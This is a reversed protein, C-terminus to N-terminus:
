PTFLSQVYRQLLPVTIAPRPVIADLHRTSFTCGSPLFLSWPARGELQLATALADPDHRCAAVRKAWADAPLVPLVYGSARFADIWQQLTIGLPQAIHYTMGDPAPEGMLRVFAHAAFDVPTVDMRATTPAVEPLANLHCLGRVFPGLLDLPNGAGTRQDGTLWGFRYHVAPGYTGAALRVYREAAWKSCGYGGRVRCPTGLDDDEMFHTPSRDTALFVALTSAYHLTKVCGTGMFRLLEGLALVNAPRLMDYTAVMNVTAALHGIRDVTNALTHWDRETMGLRPQAIDGVVVRVRTTNAELGLRAMGTAENAARVLCVVADPTQELLERLVWRGLFGTAGTLLITRGTTAFREGVPIAPLQTRVDADLAASAYGDDTRTQLLAVIASFPHDDVLWTPSLTWGRERMQVIAQMARLSDGGQTMFGLHPELTRALLHSWVAHLSRAPEDPYPDPTSALELECAVLAPYDVKGNATRPLASCVVVRNPVMWSPVRERLYSRWDMAVNLRLVVFAVLEEHMQVPRVVVTTERIAPHERLWSEIEEPEILQGRWKLQRDLRGLFVYEGDDRPRVRDGTRYWRQGAHMIFKAATLEPRRHYGRALGVGGILLEDDVITYNVGALPQGLLPEHWTAPDILGMSSCVTAETPGYLNVLRVHEAWCRLVEPSSAEGGIGITQVCAPLAEPAFLTLMLPPLDVYHIQRERLVHPLTQPDRTREDRDIVLTAGALLATGLDSVSADFAPSLLWLSRSGPRLGFLELQQQLLNVLGRHEVLVGKPRGTSGSTYIVYALDTPQTTHPPITNAPIAFPNLAQPFHADDTLVLDLEADDLIFQRRETPWRADFPVFAVGAWWCGLVSAVFAVSRPLAIGVRAEPGLDRAHLAAGIRAAWEQLAAYTTQQGDPAEVAPSTGHTAVIRNFCALVTATPSLSEGEQGSGLPTGGTRQEM